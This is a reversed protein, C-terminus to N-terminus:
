HRHFFTLMANAVAEPAHLAMQHCTALTIMEGHRFAAQLPRVADPPRLLDHAGAILLVPQPLSAMAGELDVASLVRNAHGYAVPDIALFSSRYARYGDQDHAMHAPYSRAITEDAIARMGDRAARESREMMARVRTAETRLAPACLALAAVADPRRDAYALAIATGSAIGGVYYPPALGAAEIVQEADHVLDALTYPQRVKESQGAGRQDARLIRFGSSLTPILPDWTELTGTLGHFLILSKSGEGSIRFRLSVGGGETWGARDAPM